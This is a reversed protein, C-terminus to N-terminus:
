QFFFLLPKKMGDERRKLDTKQLIEIFLIGFIEKL